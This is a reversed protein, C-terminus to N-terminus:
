AKTIVMGVGGISAPEGIRMARGGPGILEGECLRLVIREAAGSARVHCAGGSGIVLERDLLVVRRADSNPLAASSLELVATSSAANPLRFKVVCRPSIAIRDGEGLLRGTTPQDNVAVASAAKLFYDGQSREIAVPVSHAAAMLPVDFRQEGSVPGLTVREGRLVLFSGAGDVQLVFREPLAATARLGYGTALGAEDTEKGTTRTRTRTTTTPQEGGEERSGVVPERSGSGMMGLPGCAMAEAGGAAREAQEIAASVWKAEPLMQRLLRLAEVAQRYRARAAWRAARRCQELAGVLSEVEVNGAALSELRGLLLEARDPRGAALESRAAAGAGDVVEAVCKGLPGDAARHQRADLVASVAAPWDRRQIALEAAALAAAAAARRAALEARLLGVAGGEGGSGGDGGGAPALTKDGPRAGVNDLFQEAISLRGAAAHQRAGALRGMRGQGQGARHELRAAVHQKLAAVEALNGGFQEARTCDAAAPATRGAALHEEGRGALARVLRGVLEQGQRVSRLDEDALLECAEDLRGDDLAAEAQKIRLIRV